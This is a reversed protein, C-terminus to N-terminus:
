YKYPNGVHGKQGESIENILFILMSIENKPFSYDM